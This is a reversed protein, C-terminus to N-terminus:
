DRSGFIATGLRIMTAGEKIAWIYDTTMGISLESIETTKFENQLIDKWSRIQEFIKRTKIEGLNPQPISMLGRLKISKCLSVKEALKLIDSLEKLGSKSDEQSLNVQILVNMIKNNSTCHSEIKQSLEISDLTHIWQFNGPCFKVKNKQLHGLFHWEIEQNKGIKKIKELAEQVYNEGFIIQNASIAEKIMEIPKKKSVAILKIEHPSRGSEIASQTIIEKVSNLKEKISV